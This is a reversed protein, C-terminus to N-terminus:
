PNLWDPVGDDDEDDGDNPNEGEAPPQRGEQTVPGEFVYVGGDPNIPYMDPNGNHLNCYYHPVEYNQDGTNVIGYPRMTGMRVSTFICDPTALYGSESCVSVETHLNDTKTPETGKIFYESIVTGRPDLSSLESPLLGSKNDVTVSIINEPAAPFSETPIGACVQKM